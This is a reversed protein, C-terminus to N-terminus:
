LLQEFFLLIVIYEREKLDFDFRLKAYASKVQTKVTNVSVDLREAVERYKLGEVCALIFIERCKEPLSDVFARLRKRLSELEESDFEEGEDIESNESQFEQEYRNRVSRHELYNRCGNVVSRTLYAAVSVSIDLKARNDWFRIFVEQVVDEAVQSHHVYGLARYYLLDAYEQFFYELASVDGQQMNRFLSLEESVFIVKAYIGIECFYYKKRVEDNRVGFNKTM